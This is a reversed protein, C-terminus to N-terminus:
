DPGGVDPEAVADDLGDERAEQFFEEDEETAPDRGVSDEQTETVTTQGTVKEFLAAADTSEAKSM